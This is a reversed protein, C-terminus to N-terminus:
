ISKLLRELKKESLVGDHTLGRIRSVPVSMEGAHYYLYEKGCLQKYDDHFKWDTYDITM